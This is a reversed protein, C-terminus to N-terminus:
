PVLEQDPAKDVLVHLFPVGSDFARALTISPNGVRIGIALRRKRLILDTVQEDDAFVLGKLADLVPKALNDLDPADDVHLYILTLAVSDIEPTAGAPTSKRAQRRVEDIWGRLRDRRRAQQSVAPGAVVFELPLLDDESM